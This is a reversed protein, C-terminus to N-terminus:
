SLSSSMPCLSWNYTAGVDDRTEVGCSSLGTCGRFERIPLFGPRVHRVVTSWTVTKKAVPCDFSQDIM